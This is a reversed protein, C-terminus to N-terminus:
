FVSPYSVTDQLNTARENDIISTLERNIGVHKTVSIFKLGEVLFQTNKDSRWGLFLWDMYQVFLKYNETGDLDWVERADDDEFSSSEMILFEMILIVILSFKCM